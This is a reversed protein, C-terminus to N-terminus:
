IGFSAIVLFVNFESFVRNYAGYLEPELLGTVYPGVLLPIVLNFVNLTAKYFGNKALSKQQMVQRELYLLIYHCLTHGTLAM